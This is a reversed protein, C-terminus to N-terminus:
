TVSANKISSMPVGRRRFDKVGHIARDASKLPWLKCVHYTHGPAPWRPGRTAETLPNEAFTFHEPVGRWNHETARRPNM